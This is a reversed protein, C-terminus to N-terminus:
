DDLHDKLLALSQQPIVIEPDNLAVEISEFIARRVRSSPDHRHRTIELFAADYSENHISLWFRTSIAYARVEGDPHNELSESLVEYEKKLNEILGHEPAPLYSLLTLKDEINTQALAYNMLSQYIRSHNSEPGINNLLELILDAAAWGRTEYVTNLLRIQESRQPLIEEIVLIFDEANIFPSNTHWYNMLDNCTIPGEAYRQLYHDIGQGDNLTRLLGDIQESSATIGVQGRQRCKSFPKDKKEIAGGVSRARVMTASLPQALPMAKNSDTQAGSVPATQMPSTKTAVRETIVPDPTAKHQIVFFFLYTIGAVVVLGTITLAITLKLILQTMPTIQM